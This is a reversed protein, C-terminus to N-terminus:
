TVYPMIRSKLFIDLPMLLVSIDLKAEAFSAEPEIRIENSDENAKFPIFRIPNIDM